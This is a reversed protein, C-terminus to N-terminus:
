SLANLTKKLATQIHQEVISPELRLVNSIASIGAPDRKHYFTSLLVCQREPVSLEENICTAWLDGPESIRTKTDSSFTLIEAECADFTLQQFGPWHKENNGKWPNDVDFNENEVCDYALHRVVEEMKLASLRDAVIYYALKNIGASWFRDYIIYFTREDPIADDFFAHLAADPKNEVWRTEQKRKKIKNEARKSLFKVKSEEFSLSEAISLPSAGPLRLLLVVQREELTLAGLLWAVMEPGDIEPSGLRLGFDQSAIRHNQPPNCIYEKAFKAIVEQSYQGNNRSSSTRIQSAIYDAADTYCVYAFVDNKLSLEDFGVSASEMIDWAPFKSLTHNKREFAPSSRRRM